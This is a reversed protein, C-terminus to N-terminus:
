PPRGRHSPQAPSTSPIRTKVGAPKKANRPPPIQISTALMTRKMATGNSSVRGGSGSGAYRTAPNRAGALRLAVLATIPIATAVVALRLAPTGRDSGAGLMHAAALVYVVPTLRHMRRWRVAGILRRAYFSLGLLMALYATMIGIGTWFARYPTAFPVLVGALGPRIWSDALLLVGHLAIAVLAALALQEHLDKTAAYRRRAPPNSKSSSMALGVIVAAAALGFAVLGASRAGLWTLYHFPDRDSL